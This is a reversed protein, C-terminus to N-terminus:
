RKKEEHSSHLRYRTEDIRDTPYPNCYLYKRWDKYGMFQRNVAKIQGNLLYYLPKIYNEPALKSNLNSMPNKTNNKAKHHSNYKTDYDNINSQYIPKKTKNLKSRNTSLDQNISNSNMNNTNITNENFDKENTPIKYNPSKM